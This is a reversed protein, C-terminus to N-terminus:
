VCEVSGGRYVRCLVWLKVPVAMSPVVSFDILAQMLLLRQIENTYEKKGMATTIAAQLRKMFGSARQFFPTQPHTPFRSFTTNTTNESM